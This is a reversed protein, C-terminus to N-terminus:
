TMKRREETSLCGIGELEESITTAESTNCIFLIFSGYDLKAYNNRILDLNL